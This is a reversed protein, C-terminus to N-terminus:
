FRVALGTSVATQWLSRASIREQRSTSADLLWRLRPTVVTDVQGRVTQSDLAMLDGLGRIEERSLGQSYGIGVFSSGDNGFYRRVLAHGSTSDLSGPAPVRYVRATVMWSGVYKTLSGVYISTTDAFDLRRYGASVEFGRGISQYLDVAFRRRPYLTRDSSGAAAVFAYTGPRLSPYFEIEFQQDDLGFREARTARAIISGVATQRALSIAQERWPQRGDSFHEYGISAKATWPRNAADLRQRVLRAQPHGPDRALIQNAQERAAASRGSWWEVNMLGVRADTYAPAQELVRQFERRAEDYRGDWSLMLAYLLRADVDRPADVLRTELLVLGDARPVSRARALVDQAAASTVAMVILTAAILLRFAPRSMM